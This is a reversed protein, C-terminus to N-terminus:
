NSFFSTLFHMLTSWEVVFFFFCSLQVILACNVTYSLIKLFFDFVIDISHPLFKRLIKWGKWHFTCLRFKHMTCEHNLSVFSSSIIIKKFALRCSYFSTTWTILYNINSWSAVNAARRNMSFPVVVHICQFTSSM